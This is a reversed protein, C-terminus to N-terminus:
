IIKFRCINVIIFWFFGLIIWAFVSVKWFIVEDFLIFYENVDNVKSM